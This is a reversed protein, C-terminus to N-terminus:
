VLERLPRAHNEVLYQPRGNLDPLTIMFAVSSVAWKWNYYM